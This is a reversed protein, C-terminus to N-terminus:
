IGSYKILADITPERDRFAVYLEMPEYVGGKELINMLFKQGTAADFIGNQEFLLFADASLVEAWKYSYYGAAYGGSFIHSFSHQFRNFRPTNLVSVQKRVDDLMSQVQAGRSIDYEFHLRFDFLAFELQRLMQMGSQFNKAALLKNYLLDPICEGTEEHSSIFALAEKEFCWFELFQSPFEVADWPVGNIGAVSAYDVQTLIHHLVHGFEHFLTQVDEHTLLAPKNDVPRTFNCTLFAVPHQVSGDKLRRRNRCDDMWAGERKHPRSYLDTYFSGRLQNNSDYVEFFQVHPHWTDVDLRELIHIGYLKSIITFMGNMVKNVPFYARLDEQSFAYKTKRLKETYYALDWAELREIGDLSNAYAHLEHIEKEAATKSKKVLDNLFNLVRQPTDAMKTALSYDAFNKFGLLLALTHRTKIIEEMISTNDFQGANPGQDSARTAYAEYMLWRLERHALYKMVSSYSAYDLTFVWGSLNRQEANQAAVKLASEPMGVLAEADTVHLTWAQTADLINESFQTCLKSLQKQLEAYQAKEQPPLSVGALRFDRLDNDIVKKQAPNLTAYEPGEKISKIAKYLLENQVLETHYETLLPLCANYATRLAESEMVAHLHSVPSWMKSLKDDMEELPSLLNDWTYVSNENLLKNLQNRNETILRKLAPEIYESQIERFMPLTHETLLPNNNNM